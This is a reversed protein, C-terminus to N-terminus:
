AKAGKITAAWREAEEPSLHLRLHRLAFDPFDLALGDAIQRLDARSLRKAVTDAGLAWVVGPGDQTQVLATHRDDAIMVARVDDLPWERLWRARADAETAFAYRRSFGLLHTLLVILAIGLVVAPGLIHLPM